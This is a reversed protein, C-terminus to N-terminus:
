KAHLKKYNKHHTKEKRITRWALWLKRLPTLKIQHELVRFGDLEIEDLLSEYITKMIIGSRQNFRDEEPLKELAQRYYNRARDAQFKFLKKINDPTQAQLFDEPKVAFQELENQPIYVRHRQADERVDRLINTLQLAMGLDHAYQQTQPNTYGFIEITLLGVASAARYCYDSLDKFSQYHNFDLDMQMGDIIDNFYKEEFSFHGLQPKLALTVPHQPQGHFLRQIEERWWSLKVRAVQQETIEDVVDDVERCFAYLAMIAKRKQEPLLLFSYYFSSGSKATKEQCYQDPTM